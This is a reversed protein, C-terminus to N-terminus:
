LVRIASRWATWCCSAGAACSPSSGAAEGVVTPQSTLIVLEGNESTVAELWVDDGFHKNSLLLRNLYESPLAFALGPYVPGAVVTFGYRGPYTAKLYRDGGDFM